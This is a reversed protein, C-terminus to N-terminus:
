HQPKYPQVCAGGLIAALFRDLVSIFEFVSVNRLELTEFEIQYFIDVQLASKNTCKLHEAECRAFLSVSSIPCRCVICEDWTVYRVYFLPVMLDTEM